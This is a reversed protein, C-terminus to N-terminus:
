FIKKDLSTYDLANHIRFPYIWIIDVCIRSLREGGLIFFVSNFVGLFVLDLLIWLIRKKKM